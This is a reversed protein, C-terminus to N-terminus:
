AAAPTRHVPAEVAPADRDTLEHPQKGYTAFRALVGAMEDQDLLVPEGIQRAVWYQKALTEVEVALWMAKDLNERLCIMGHNALLCAKREDLAALMNNSLAQTGFTAYDACRIDTGGGVGIMYHFPPIGLRLCSLATCYNAHTHVVAGADPRTRYIDYHMRWESSPLLDGYYGGELDMEVIQDVAMRDYPIGSPTILFRDSDPVRVSINGSTGQNIGLANMELCAEILARCLAITDPPSM